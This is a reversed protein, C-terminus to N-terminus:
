EPFTETEKFCECIPLPVGGSNLHKGALLVATWALCPSKWGGCQAAETKYSCTTLCTRLYDTNGSKQFSICRTVLMRQLMRISILGEPSPSLGAELLFSVTSYINSFQVKILDTVWYKSVMALCSYLLSSVSMALKNMLQFWVAVFISVLANPFLSQRRNCSDFFWNCSQEAFEVLRWSIRSRLISSRGIHSSYSGYSYVAMRRIKEISLTSYNTGFCCNSM